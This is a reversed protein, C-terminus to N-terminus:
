EDLGLLHAMIGMRVPIGNRAQEFYKAFHTEDVEKPIEDIKPLPHLIAMDKKAKKLLEPSVRFEKQVKEAEYLDSFREKQIRCVYLVDCDNLEVSNTESINAGFQQKLEEIVSPDMELGKPSALTANAGFMALGHLLSRMARAYKLDGLLVVNLGELKEKLKIMSYLDILTQSPHQNGGDGANIVPKDVIDAALRATGELPHRIVLLDAYGAIIKVTDRFTEGKSTSSYEAYFPLTEMGVRKAATQFSMNTRTSAEFFMTAVIKSVRKESFYGEYKGALKLYREIEGKSLDRISILDKKKAM